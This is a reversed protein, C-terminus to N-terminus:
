LEKIIKILHSIYRQKLASIPILHNQDIKLYNSIKTKLNHLESQKLKDIKNAVVYYQASSNKRVFESIEKDHATVVCADIVHIIVKLNERSALYDGILDGLVIKTAKDLKAYGYGPLDVLRQNAIMYFNLSQTMGPRKSTRAIKSGALANILSSKGVNSRGILCLENTRDQPCQVLNM